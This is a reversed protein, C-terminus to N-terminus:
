APPFRRPKLLTQFTTGDAVGPEASSARCKWYSSLPLPRNLETQHQLHAPESEARLHDWPSKATSSVRQIARSAVSRGPRIADTFPPGKLIAVTLLSGVEGT